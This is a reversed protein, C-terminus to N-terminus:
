SFVSTFTFIQLVQWSSTTCFLKHNDHYMCHERCGASRHCSENSWHWNEVWWRWAQEGAGIAGTRVCVFLSVTMGLSRSDLGTGISIFWLGVALKSQLISKSRIHYLCLQLQLLHTSFNNRLIQNLRYCNLLL